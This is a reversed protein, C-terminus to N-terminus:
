FSIGPPLYVEGRSIIRATRVVGSKQILLGDDTLEAELSVTFEGSPHEISLETMDYPTRILDEAISGPILCASAVSVAGLVGIAAHCVHPIFTRTNVFGGERAPSLLCMKPVTKQSVEGLNMKHSIELRIQELRTRLVQNHDLEAKTEYGTIGFDAARLNVVPMGNDICTMGIGDIWDIVNGTPLLAGCNAGATDLYSCIIPSGTGPVGDVKANGSFILEGDPTPLKIECYGGGNLLQVRATTVPHQAPLMGNEIAFPLVGALINGCTQATSLEGKGIVVQLFLYDLDAEDKESHNVVAVKATLSDGGGLGDIQRPDGCGVGEMAALIAENRDREAPPLDKADFYVGKSSGGRIQMYPLSRQPM